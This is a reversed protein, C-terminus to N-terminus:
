RAPSPLRFMASCPMPPPSAAPRRTPSCSSIPCGARACSGCRSPPARCRCSPCSARRCARAAPPSLSCSPAHKQRATRMATIIAEGAAMGLSGGMFAFDQVAIVIPAWRAHRHRRPDRRRRRDEAQSEKLRDAYRREDRFKLPDIPSRRAAHDGSIRREDFMSKLRVDPAMRMHYGSGPIVFQNAELDRYFVM